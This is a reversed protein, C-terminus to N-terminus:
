RLQCVMFYEETPILESSRCNESILINYFILNEKKKRERMLHDYYVFLFLLM